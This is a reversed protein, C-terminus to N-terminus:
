TSIAKAWPVLLRELGVMLYYLAAGMIGLMTLAAFALPTDATQPTVAVVSGLGEEPQTVEGICAGIIALSIGVKLGVFIQPLAWSLRVRYFTQWWSASLSSALERLDAPTSSLGAITSVLIPFFSVLVVMVIKPQTGFGFWILLLPALAVKPLANFAAILPMVMREATRSAALLVALVLGGGVAIGYGVVVEYFTVWAHGLLTDRLRVFADFVDPPGPFMFTDIDFLGTILWWLSFVLVVGLLPLGAYSRLKSLATERDETM